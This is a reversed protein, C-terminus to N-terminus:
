SSLSSALLLLSLLLLVTAQLETTTILLLTGRLQLRTSDTYLITFCPRVIAM